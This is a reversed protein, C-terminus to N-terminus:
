DDSAIGVLATLTGKESPQRYLYALADDTDTKTGKAIAKYPKASVDGSQLLM